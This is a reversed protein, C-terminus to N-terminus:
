KKLDEEGGDARIEKEAAAREEPSMPKLPSHTGPDPIGVNTEGQADSYGDVGGENDVSTWDQM